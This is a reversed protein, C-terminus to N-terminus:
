FKCDRGATQLQKMLEFEHIFIARILARQQTIYAAQVTNCASLILMFSLVAAATFKTVKL